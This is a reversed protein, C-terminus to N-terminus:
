SIFCVKKILIYDRNFLKQYGHKLGNKYNIEVTLYGQTDFFKWLSDLVFNLRNGETKLKGNQHYTKWYGNPKGNELTGESTVLGDNNKFIKYEKKVQADCFCGISFLFFLFILTKFNM